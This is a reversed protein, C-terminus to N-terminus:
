GFPQSSGVGLWRDLFEICVTGPLSAAAVVMALKGIRPWTAPVLRDALEQALMIFFGVGFVAMGWYVVRRGVPIGAYTGYPGLFGLVVSAVAMGVAARLYYRSERRMRNVSGSRRLHVLRTNGAGTRAFVM